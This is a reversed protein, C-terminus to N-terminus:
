ETPKRDQEYRERLTELTVGAGPIRRDGGTLDWAGEFGFKDMADALKWLTESAPRTTGNEIKRITGTSVQSIQALDRQDMNKQRRLDKLIKGVPRDKEMDGHEGM